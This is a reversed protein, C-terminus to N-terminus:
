VNSVFVQAQSGQDNVTLDWPETIGNAAGLTQVVNGNSDLIQLSGPLVGGMGDNPVNGVIVFGAKLVGLATSLGPLTSTFFTSLQGAPSIRDITTGTGQTNGMNNFNAVLIDGPHIQGAGQFDQPVFAVGYPNVDGNSPVTALSQFAGAPLNPLIPGNLNLAPTAQLTGFLGDMEDHIGATFFLTNAHGSNASGKGFLLGWLKDIVIPQGNTGALQGLFTGNNPDFANIHGDGFNGVLLDNSYLGFNAPALALGWPSNLAGQSALRHVLNGNLDYVDVFGNGPGAMDDHKAANQLAYTVYVSGNLVTVNFPAFGAPLNPDTFSGALHTPAFTSSFVDINGSNFNAALLFNGSPTIDLALGKYVAGTGSNDVKLIAHTADAKPNWGSITGDETAFLFLSSGSGSMGTVPFGAGATNFVVGTPAATTMPPSGAPPPITVVLPSGVPFPQGQANYLTSVGAANDSVWIPSTPSAVLGWPNKLNPDVVQALGPLDSVLNTQVYGVAM